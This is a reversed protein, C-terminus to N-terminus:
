WVQPAGAAVAWKGDPSFRPIGLLPTVDGTKADVLLGVSLEDWREVVVHFRNDPSTGAYDFSRFIQPPCTVQGCALDDTLVLHRGDELALSLRNGDRRAKDASAKISPGESQARGTGIDSLWEALSTDPKAPTPASPLAMPGNAAPGAHRADVLPADEAYPLLLTPASSPIIALKYGGGAPDWGLYRYRTKLETPCPLDGCAAHDTLTMIEGTKLRLSLGDDQRWVLGNSAKLAEAEDAKSQEVPPPPPPPSDPRSWLAALSLGAAATLTLASVASRRM